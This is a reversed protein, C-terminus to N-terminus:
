KGSWSQIDLDASWQTYQREVRHVENILALMFEDAVGGRLKRREWWTERNAEYWRRVEDAVLDGLTTPDLAPIGGAEVDVDPDTEIHTKLWDNTFLLRM